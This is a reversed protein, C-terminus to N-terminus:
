EGSWQKPRSKRWRRSCINQPYPKRSAESQKQTTDALFGDVLKAAESTAVV